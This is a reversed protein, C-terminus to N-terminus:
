EYHETWHAIEGRLVRAGPVDDYQSDDEKGGYWNAVCKPTECVWGTQGAYTMEQECHSCVM